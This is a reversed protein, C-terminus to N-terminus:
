SLSMYKDILLSRKKASLGLEILEGQVALWLRPRCKKNSLQLRRLNQDSKIEGRIGSCVCM